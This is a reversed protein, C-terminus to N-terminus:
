IDGETAPRRPAIWAVPLGTDEVKVLAYRRRFVHPSLRDNRKPPGGNANVWAAWYKSRRNAKPNELSGLNLYWTLCGLPEILSPGFVDFQAACVWRKFGHDFYVIADRCYNPYKGPEIRPTYEWSIEPENRQKTATPKTISLRHARAISEATIVSQFQAIKTM